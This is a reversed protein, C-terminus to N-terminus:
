YGNSPCLSYSVQDVTKSCNYMIFATNYAEICVWVIAFLNLLGGEREAVVFVIIWFSNVVFGAFSNLMSIPMSFYMLNNIIKSCEWIMSYFRKLFILDKFSIRRNNITRVHYIWPQGHDVKQQLYEKIIEINIRLVSVYFIILRENLKTIIQSSLILMLTLKEEFTNEKLIYIPIQNLSIIIIQILWFLLYSRRLWKISSCKRDVRDYRKELMADMTQFRNLLKVHENRKLFVESLTTIARAFNLHILVYTYFRYKTPNIFIDLILLIFSPVTFLALILLTICGFFKNFHWRQASQSFSLPAVGVFQGIQILLPITQCLSM